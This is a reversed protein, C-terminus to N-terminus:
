CLDNQEANILRQLETIELPNNELDWYDPVDLELKVRRFGLQPSQDASSVVYIPVEDTSDKHVFVYLQIKM